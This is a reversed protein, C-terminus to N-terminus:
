LAKISLPFCGFNRMNAAHLSCCVLGVFERGSEPANEDIEGLLSAEPRYGVLNANARLCQGRHCGADGGVCRGDRKDLPAEGLQGRFPALSPV